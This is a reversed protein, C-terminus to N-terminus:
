HAQQLVLDVVGKKKRILLTFVMKKHFTKLINKSAAHLVLSDL